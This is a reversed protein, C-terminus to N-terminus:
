HHDVYVVVSTQVHIVENLVNFAPILSDCLPALFFHIQKVLGLYSFPTHSPNGFQMM